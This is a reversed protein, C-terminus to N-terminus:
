ELKIWKAAFTALGGVLLIRDAMERRTEEDVDVGFHAGQIQVLFAKAKACQLQLHM